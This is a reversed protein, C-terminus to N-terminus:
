RDDLEDEDVVVFWRSVLRALSFGIFFRWDSAIFIREFESMAVGFDFGQCTRKALDQLHQLVQERHQVLEFGLNHRSLPTDQRQSAVRGFYRPLVSLM